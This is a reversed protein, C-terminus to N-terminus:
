KQGGPPGFIPYKTSHLNTRFKCPSENGLLVHSFCTDFNGGPVGGPVGGGGGPYGGRVGWKQPTCVRAFERVSAHVNTCVLKVEGTVNQARM